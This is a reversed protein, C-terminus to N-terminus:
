APIRGRSFVVFLDHYQRHPPSKLLYERIRESTQRNSLYTLDFRTDDFRYYIKFEETQASAYRATDAYTPMALLLSFLLIFLQKM